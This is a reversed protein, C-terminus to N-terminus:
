WWQQYHSQQWLSTTYVLFYFLGQFYWYSSKMLRRHDSVVGRKLVTGSLTHEESCCPESPLKNSISFRLGWSLGVFQFRCTLLIELTHLVRLHSFCHKLPFPGQTDLHPDVFTGLKDELLEKNKPPFIFEMSEWWDIKHCNEWLNKEQACSDWGTHMYHHTITKLLCKLSQASARTRAKSSEQRLMDPGSCQTVLHQATSVNDQKARLIQLWLTILM